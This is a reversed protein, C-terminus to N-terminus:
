ESAGSETPKVAKKIRTRTKDLHRSLRLSMPQQAQHWLISKETDRLLEVLEANRQESATLRKYLSSCEAGLEALDSYREKALQSKGIAIQCSRLHKRKREALQDRLAALESQAADYGSTMREAEAKWIDRDTAFELNQKAVKSTLFEQLESM